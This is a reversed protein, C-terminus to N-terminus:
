GIILKRGKLQFKVNGYRLVELVNNIDENRKIKGVFEDKPIDGNYQIEIDYWRSLQRMLTQIDVRDFQFFGDKWAMVSELDAPVINLEQINNMQVQYGPRLLQSTKSTSVKVSGELLTTRILVEDKYANVNFKTGLVQIEQNNSLVKFPKKKNHAVEFYAEGQISVKRENESFQAPFTISSASNLWVHSGDPLIVQYIGGRPTEIKNVGINEEGSVFSQANFVLLGDKQKEVSFSGNQELTGNAVDNLIIQKGNNLTLIANNGGPVIPLVMQEQTIENNHNTRYTYFYFSFALGIIALVAAVKYIYKMYQRKSVLPIVEVSDEQLDKNMTELLYKDLKGEELLNFFVQLENEDLQKNLYRNVLEKYFKKEM